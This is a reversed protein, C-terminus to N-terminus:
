CHKGHDDMGKQRERRAFPRSAAQTESLTVRELILLLWGHAKGARQVLGLFMVCSLFGARVAPRPIMESQQV